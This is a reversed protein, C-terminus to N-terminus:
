FGERSWDVKEEKDIHLFTSRRTRQRRAIRDLHRNRERQRERVIRQENWRRNAELRMDDQLADQFM